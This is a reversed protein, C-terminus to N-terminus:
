KGITPKNKQFIHSVGHVSSSTGFTQIVTSLVNKDQNDNKDADKPMSGRCSFILFDLLEIISVVSIGLILGLFGGITALLDDFDSVRKKEFGYFYEEEYSTGFLTYVSKPRKIKTDYDIKDCKPYCGCNEVNSQFEKEIRRYCM